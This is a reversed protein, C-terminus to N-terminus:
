EGTIFNEIKSPEGVILFIDGAGIQYNADPIFRITKEKRDTEKGPSDVFVSKKVMIIEIGFKARINLEGVTRNRFRSPAPIESMTLGDGFDIRRVRDLEALRGSIGELIDHKFVERNYAEIVDKQSVNGIIKTRDEPSVVPLEDVKKKGFYEMAIDLTDEPTLVPIDTDAIDKAIVLASLPEQELFMLRLDAVTILGRFRHREDIIFFSTRSSQTVRELLTQLPTNEPILDTKENMVEKVRHSKLINIEKHRFFDIGSRILKLTYISEEHFKKAVLLSITSCIMVPLINTYNNTIETILIIATLPAHTSGAVLAGMAAVAYAGPEATSLPFLSHIWYGFTGGLVAGVFLSPTFVGGSGGSGITVATAVIKLGILILLVQWVIDGETAKVIVDHGIGYIHPFGLAILGVGLGGLVPKVAGSLHLKGFLDEAGYILRIYAVSILGGLIGLVAFFVLDWAGSLTFPPFDFDPINGWFSRSVYAGLVSSVIVPGFRTVAFDKMIIELAFLAGAIPANFTAAIGAAAGCGVFTRLRSPAVKFIQGFTSGIASGIQVIPGEPGVSGGSGISLASAGSRTVVTKPHIMGEQLVISEMVEPVGHGKAERAFFHILPGVILAGIVPIAIRSYWPLELLFELTYDGQGFFLLEVWHILLRFGVAGFGALIGICAAFLLNFVLEWSRIKILITSIIKKYFPIKM